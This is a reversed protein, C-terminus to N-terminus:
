SGEWKGLELGLEDKGEADGGEGLVSPWPPQFFIDLASCCVSDWCLGWVSPLVVDEDLTSFGKEAADGKLSGLHHVPSRCSGIEAPMSPMSPLSERLESHGDVATDRSQRSSHTSHPSLVETRVEPGFSLDPEQPPDLRLPTTFTSSSTFSAEEVFGGQVGYCHGKVHAGLKLPPVFPKKFLTPAPAAPAEAKPSGPSKAGAKPSVQFFPICPSQNRTPGSIVATTHTSDIGSM